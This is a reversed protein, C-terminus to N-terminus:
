GDVCISGRIRYFVPATGPLVMHFILLHPATPPIIVSAFMNQSVINRSPFFTHLQVPFTGKHFARAGSCNKKKSDRPRSECPVTEKQVWEPKPDPKLSERTQSVVVYNTRLQMTQLPLKTRLMLARGHVACPVRLSDRGVRVRMCVCVM